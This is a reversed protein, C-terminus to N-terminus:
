LHTEKEGAMLGEKLPTPGCDRSSGGDLCLHRKPQPLSPDPTVLQRLRQPSFLSDTTSNALSAFVIHGGTQTGLAWSPAQGHPLETRHSQIFSCLDRSSLPPLPTPVTHSGTRVDTYGYAVWQVM